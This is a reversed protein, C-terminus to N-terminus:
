PTHALRRGLPVPAIDLWRDTGAQRVFTLEGIVVRRTCRCDEWRRKAEEVVRTAQEATDMKAITLHPMYPWPEDAHLPGVNLRDHLERMRYAAHAVRIFVTPTLPLFTAVEGLSVEFPQIGQCVYEITELAEAETGRLPRPPLVSIHAPLHAHKPQVEARLGEVFEGVPDRLYAVIAYQLPDM